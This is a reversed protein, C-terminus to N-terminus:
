PSKNLQVLVSGCLLIFLSIIVGGLYGFRYKITLSLFSYIILLLFSVGLAFLLWNLQIQFQWQVGIGAILSALLRVFPTKGSWSGNSQPMIFPLGSGDYRM